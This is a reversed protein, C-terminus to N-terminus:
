LTETESMFGQGYNVGLRTEGFSATRRCHRGEHAFDRKQRCSPSDTAQRKAFYSSYSCFHWRPWSNIAYAYRATPPSIAPQRTLSTGSNQRARRVGNVNKCTTAICWGTTTIRFTRFDAPCHVNTQKYTIGKVFGHKDAKLGYPLLSDEFCTPPSPPM